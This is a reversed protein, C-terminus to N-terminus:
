PLDVEMNSLDFNDRHYCIYHLNDIQSDALALLDDKDFGQIISSDLDEICALEEPCVIMLNTYPCYFYFLEKQNVFMGDTQAYYTQMNYPSFKIRELTNFMEPKIFDQHHTMFWKFYNTALETYEMKIRKEKKKKHVKKMERSLEDSFKQCEMFYKRLVDTSPSYYNNLYNYIKGDVNLYFEVQNDYLYNYIKETTEINRSFRSYDSVSLTFNKNGSQVIYKIIDLIYDAKQNKYASNSSIIINSLGNYGLNSIQWEKSTIDDTVKSQRVYFFYKSQPDFNKHLYLKKKLGFNEYFEEKYPGQSIQHLIINIDM